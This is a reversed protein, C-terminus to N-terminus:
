TRVDLKSWKGFVCSGLVAAFGQLSGGRVVRRRPTQRTGVSLSNRAYCGRRTKPRRECHFTMGGTMTGLENAVCELRGIKLGGLVYGSNFSGTTVSRKTARTPLRKGFLIRRSSHTSWHNSNLILNAPYYCHNILGHASSPNNDHPNIGMVQKIYWFPM